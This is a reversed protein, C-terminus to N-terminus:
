KLDELNRIVEDKDIDKDKFFSLLSFGKSSTKAFNESEKKMEQIGKIADIKSFFTLDISNNFEKFKTVIEGYGDSNLGDLDLTNDAKIYDLINFKFVKSYFEYIDIDATNNLGSLTSLNVETKNKALKEIYALLKGGQSVTMQMRECTEPMNSVCEIAYQGTPSVGKFYYQTFEYIINETIIM